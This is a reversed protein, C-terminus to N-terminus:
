VIGGFPTSSTTVAPNSNILSYMFNKTEALLSKVTIRILYADPVITKIKRSTQSNFFESKYTTTARTIAESFFDDVLNRPPGNINFTQDTNLNNLTNTNNEDGLQFPINTVRLNDTFSLNFELERRSGQFEVAINSVYCFPLFKVGPIDLQYLVPPDVISVSRRSPKNNYLLLFLLEWNRVVDDFTASGTNILPFTFSVEEGETSYNYLKAKEVFSIDSPKNLTTLLDTFDTLGDIAMKAIGSFNTNSDGSYINAQASSYNDFYPLIFKWGTDETIYLNEYPRMLPNNKFVPNNDKLEPVITEAFQTASQKANGLANSANSLNTTVNNGLFQRALPNQSLQNLTDQTVTFANGFAYRLQSILSNVRQRKETLIVRPVEQRSERLKSYTWYFDNVVDVVSGNIVTGDSNTSSGYATNNPSVLFPPAVNIDRGFKENDVEKFERSRNISFVHEM